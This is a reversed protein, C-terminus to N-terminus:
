YVKFSSTWAPRAQSSPLFTSNADVLLRAAAEGSWQSGGPGSCVSLKVDSFHLNVVKYTCLLNQM